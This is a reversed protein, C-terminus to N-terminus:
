GTYAGLGFFAATGFSPYGAMGGIVNWSVAMVAYMCAMTGLRLAYGEGFLPLFALLLLGGFLIWDKRRMMRVRAQRALGAASLDPVPHAPRVVAHGRARSRVCAVRLERGPRPSARRAGRRARQRAWRARLRRLSERSVAHGVAALDPLDPR